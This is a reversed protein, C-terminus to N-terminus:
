LKQNGAVKIEYLNQDSGGNCLDCRPSGMNVYWIKKRHKYKKVKAHYFEKQFNFSRYVKKLVTFYKELNFSGLLLDGNNDNDNNNPSVKENISQDLSVKPSVKQMKGM